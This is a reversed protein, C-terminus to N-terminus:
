GRCALELAQAPDLGRGQQVLSEVAAAGLLQQAEATVQAVVQAIEDTGM